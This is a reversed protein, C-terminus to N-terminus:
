KLLFQAGNELKLIAPHTPANVVGGNKLTGSKLVKGNLDFLQFSTESALGVVAFKGPVLKHVQPTTLAVANTRPVSVSEMLEIVSSPLSIKSGPIAIEMPNKREEGPVVYSSRWNFGTANYYDGDEWDATTDGDLMFDFVIHRIISDAQAWPMKLFGCEHYMKFEDIIISTMPYKKKDGVRWFQWGPYYEADTWGEVAVHAVAVSSDIRSFNLSVGGILLEFREYCITEWDPDYTLVNETKAWDPLSDYDGEEFQPYHESFTIANFTFTTDTKALVASFVGLLAIAVFKM